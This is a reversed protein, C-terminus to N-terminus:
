VDYYLKYMHYGIFLVFITVIIMSEGIATM